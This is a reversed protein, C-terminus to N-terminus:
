KGFLMGLTVWQTYVVPAEAFQQSPFFALAQTYGGERNSPGGDSCVSGYVNVCSYGYTEIWQVGAEVGASMTYISGINFRVTAPFAVALSGGYGGGLGRFTAGLRVDVAPGAGFNVFATAQAGLGTGANSLFVLQPAVLGVDVGFHAGQRHTAARRWPSLYPVIDGAGDPTVVFEGTGGPLVSFADPVHYDDGNQGIGRARHVVWGSNATVSHTCPLDCVRTRDKTLLSWTGEGQPEFRVEVSEEHATAEETM